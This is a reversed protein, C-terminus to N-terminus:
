VVLMWVTLQDWCCWWESGDVAVGQLSLLAPVYRAGHQMPALVIEPKVPGLRLKSRCCGEAIGM